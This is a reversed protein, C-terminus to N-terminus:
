NDLLYSSYERLNETTAWRQLRYFRMKVKQAPLAMTQRILNHTGHDQMYSEQPGFEQM